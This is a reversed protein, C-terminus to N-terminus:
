GNIIGNILTRESWEYSYYPGVKHFMMFRLQVVVMEGGEDRPDSWDEILSRMKM